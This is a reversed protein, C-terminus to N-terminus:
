QLKKNERADEDNLTWVVRTILLEGDGRDLVFVNGRGAGDWGVPTGWRWPEDMDDGPLTPLALTSPGGPLLASITTFSDLHSYITM